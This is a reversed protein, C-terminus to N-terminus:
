SLELGDVRINIVNNTSAKHRLVEGAELVLSGDFEAREGAGLATPALFINDDAEAGTWLTVTVSSATNNSIIIHKIIAQTLAPVTYVAASTSPILGLALKKFVETTTAM